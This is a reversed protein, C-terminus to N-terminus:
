PGACLIGSLGPAPTPSKLGMSVLQKRLAEEDKERENEAYELIRKLSSVTGAMDGGLPISVVVRNEANLDFGPGGHIYIQEIPVCFLERGTAKWWQMFDSGRVDGFDAYLAAFEGLGGTECCEIYGENEKLFLWWYYYVSRQYRKASAFPRKPLQDDSIDDLNTLPPAYTFYRVRQGFLMKKYM